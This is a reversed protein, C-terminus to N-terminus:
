KNKIGELFIRALELQKQLSEEFVGAAPVPSKVSVLCLQLGVLMDVFLVATKEPDVARFIGEEIGKRIRDSILGFETEKVKKMLAGVQPDKLMAETNGESIHLMYYNRFFANRIRILNLLGTDVEAHVRFEERVADLYEQTVKEAVALVLSPKDPFYYYLNPKSMSLDEAIENMTTKQISFHSFR